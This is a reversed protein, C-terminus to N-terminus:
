LCNGSTTGAAVSASAAISCKSPTTAEMHLNGSADISVNQGITSKNGSDITVDGDSNVDAGQKIIAVSGSYDGTSVVSLDGTTNVTTHQGVKATRSASVYISQATVNAGSKLGADSASTDGTSVVNISGTVTVTTNEGIHSGRSASLELSGAAVTSGSKVIATSSSSDGTSILRLEGDVDVQSNQGVKANKAAQILVNAADIVSGAGFGASDEESLVCATAANIQFGNDDLVGKRGDLSVFTGSLLVDNALTISCPSHIDLEDQTLDSMIKLNKYNSGGLRGYDNAVYLNYDATSYVQTTGSCGVPAYATHIECAKTESPVVLLAIPEEFVGGQSVVTQNGTAPDIRILAGGVTSVGDVVLISGDADISIGQPNVVFGGSAIVSQTGTGADIKLVSGSAETVIYDGNSDIAVAVPRSLSGGSFLITQNGTSPDVEVIKGPASLSHDAVVFNGAADITIGIPYLFVGGSSILSQNGTSPDVRLIAGTGGYLRDTVIYDGNADLVIGAPDAFFGGTSVFSQAGTTPDVKIVAGNGAAQPDAIILDGNEDLVLTHPSGFLQDQSIVQQAGTIPDVLITADNHESVVIDGPELVIAEEACAAATSLEQVRTLDLVEDFICLEDIAGTFRNGTLHTQHGQGVRWDGSGLDGTLVNNPTESVEIGDVYMKGVGGSRTVVLHRWTSSDATYTTTSYFNDSVQGGNQQQTVLRIKQNNGNNYTLAILNVLGQDGTDLFQQDGSQSDFRLWVSISFDGSGIQLVDGLSIHSLGDFKAAGNPTGDRGSVYQETGSWSGNNGNGSGDTADGDFPWSGVVDAVAANSCTWVIGVSLFKALYTYSRM